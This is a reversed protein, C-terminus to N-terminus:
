SWTEPDTLIQPMACLCLLGQKQIRSFKRCQAHDCFVMNRSGYSNASYRMIPSSWTESNAANRMTLSSRTEPDAFFKRCQAYASSRGSNRKRYFICLTSLICKPNFIVTSAVKGILYKRKKKM